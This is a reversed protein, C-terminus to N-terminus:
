PCVVADEGWPVGGCGGGRCVDPCEGPCVGVYVEVRWVGASVRATAPASTWGHTKRKDSNHNITTLRPPDHPTTTSPAHDYYGQLKLHLSVM